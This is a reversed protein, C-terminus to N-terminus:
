EEENKHYSELKQIIRGEPVEYNIVGRYENIFATSSCETLKIHNSKCCRIRYRRDNRGAVFYSEIGNIFHNTDCEAHLPDDLENLYESWSCYDFYNAVKRCKFNWNRDYWQTDYTSSLASLYLGDECQEKQKRTIYNCYYIKGRREELPRHTNSIIIVMIYKRSIM